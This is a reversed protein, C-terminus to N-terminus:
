IGTQISKIFNEIQELNNKSHRVKGDMVEKRYKSPSMGNMQRFAKAFVLPDKYGCSLAISEVSFDTVQLLEAAKTIRFITLFQQPSMQLSNQFLTYLYSRNICVYDAVDTVKIPNCYNSRIFDIAMDVYNNAKDIDDKESVTISESIISLFMKLLGNRRLENSMSYTNHEMMDKVIAYLEDQKESQIIPHRISLGMNRIYEGAQNGSFGVWIYTWPNKEDAQYFTLEDPEILFGYGAELPFEKNGVVFKGKGDLVFHILYHPRVAPGFSHLPETRSCGCTNLYLDGSQKNTFELKYAKEM